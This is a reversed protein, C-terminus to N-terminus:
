SDYGQIERCFEPHLKKYERIFREHKIHEIKEICATLAKMKENLEEIEQLTRKSEDSLKIDLEMELKDKM